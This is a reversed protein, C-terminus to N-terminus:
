KSPRKEASSGPIPPPLETWGPDTEQGEPVRLWVTGDDCVVILHGNQTEIASVPKKM